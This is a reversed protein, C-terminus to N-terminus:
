NRLREPYRFEVSEFIAHSQSSRVHVAGTNASATFAPLMDKMFITPTRPDGDITQQQFFPAGQGKFQEENFNDTAYYVGFGGRVVTNQAFGPRWTFGFRPAFNNWDPDVIDRRVGRGAM